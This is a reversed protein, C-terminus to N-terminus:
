KVLLMRKTESFQGGALRYFYVGSSVESGYSDKGDWTITYYGSDQPENVLTRVEQGLVNYIKLTVHPHSQDSVVSYQISTTPNFPNPCNQTLEYRTPIRAADSVSSSRVVAPISTAEPSALIIKELQIEGAREAGDSVAFSLRVIPGDGPAIGTGDTSYILVVMEGDKSNYAVSMNASRDTLEPEEAVVREGDFKLSFQVGAIDRTNSVALPVHIVRVATETRAESPCLEVVAKEVSGEAGLFVSFIFLVGVAGVCIRSYYTFPLFRLFMIWVEKEEHLSKENLFFGVSIGVWHAYVRCNPHIFSSLNMRILSEKSSAGDMCIENREEKM